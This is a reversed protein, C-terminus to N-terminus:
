EMFPLTATRDPREAQQIASLSAWDRPTGVTQRVIAKLEEEKMSSSDDLASFYRTEPDRLNNQAVPQDWREMGPFPLSDLGAFYSMGAGTAGLGVAAAAGWALKRHWPSFRRPRSTARFVKILRDELAAPPRTAAFLSDMDRDFSRADRLAAACAE